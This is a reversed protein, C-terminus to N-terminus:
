IGVRFDPNEENCRQLLWWLGAGASPVPSHTM